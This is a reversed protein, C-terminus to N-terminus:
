KKDDEEGSLGKKFNRIGLGIDKMVSPLKGAGFLILVLILILILQWIGISM